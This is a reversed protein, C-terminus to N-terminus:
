CHSRSVLRCFTRVVAADSVQLHECQILVDLSLHRDASLLYLVTSCLQKGAASRESESLGSGCVFM